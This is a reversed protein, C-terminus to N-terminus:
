LALGPEQLCPSFQLNAWSHRSPSADGSQWGVVDPASVPDGPAERHIFDAHQSISARHFSTEQGTSTKSLPQVPPKEDDLVELRRRKQLLKVGHADDAHVAGVPAM